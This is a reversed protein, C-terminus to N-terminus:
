NLLYNVAKEIRELQVEDYNQPHELYGIGLAKFKALDEESLENKVTIYKATFQAKETMQGEFLEKKGEKVWTPEKPLPQDTLLIEEIEPDPACVFDGDFDYTPFAENTEYLMNADFQKAAEKVAKCKPYMAIILACAGVIVITAAVKIVTASSIRNEREPFDRTFTSEKFFTFKM